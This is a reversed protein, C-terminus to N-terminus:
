VATGGKLPKRIMRSIHSQAVGLLEAIEDQGYGYVHYLLGAKGRKTGLLEQGADLLAEATDFAQHGNGKVMDMVTLSNDGEDTTPEDLSRVRGHAKSFKVQKDRGLDSFIQMKIVHGAFTSFKVGKDERFYKAAKCLAFGCISLLEDRNAGTWLYQNAFHVALPYNQEVLVKQAETLKVTMGTDGGCKKQNKCSNDVM